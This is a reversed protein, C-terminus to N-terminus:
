SWHVEIIEYVLLRMGGSLRLDKVGRVQHAILISQNDFRLHLFFELGLYSRGIWVVHLLQELLLLFSHTFGLFLNVFLSVLFGFLLRLLLIQIFSLILFIAFVRLIFFLLLFFLLLVGSLASRPLQIYLLCVLAVPSALGHV